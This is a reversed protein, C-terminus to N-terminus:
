AEDKGPVNFGLVTLMLLREKDGRHHLTFRFGTEPPYDVEKVFNPHGKVVGTIQEVVATFNRRRSFLLIATKTDRWSTYKLIQDIAATLSKPGDWFKCEAIFLNRDKYKIIIDTKGALNFTEGTVQGEYHPNLQILFLWRLDEEDMAGIAAPRQEMMRAVSSCVDLIFEYNEMDLPPVRVTAGTGKAALPVPLKRRVMPVTYAIPACEGRKTPIGLAAVFRQDKLLAARRAEIWAKAKARVASSFQHVDDEVWGLYQKVLALDGQLRARIDQADRDITDYTLVLEQGQLAARPRRAGGASPRYTFLGVPGEFPVHVAVRLASVSGGPRDRSERDLPAPVQVAVPQDRYLTDELLRPVIPTCTGQFHDCLGELDVTLVVGPKLAEIEQHMQQELAQLIQSLEAEAVLEQTVAM